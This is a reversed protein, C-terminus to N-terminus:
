GFRKESVWTLDEYTLSVKGLNKQAIDSLVFSTIDSLQEFFKLEKQENACRCMSMEHLEQIKRCSNDITQLVNQNQHTIMDHSKLSCESVNTLRTLASLVHAVLEEDESDQYLEPQNNCIATTGFTLFHLLTM